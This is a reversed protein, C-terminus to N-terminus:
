PYCGTAGRWGGRGGSHFWRSAHTTHPKSCSVRSPVVRAGALCHCECSSIFGGWPPTTCAFWGSQGSRRHQSCSPQLQPVCARMSCGCLACLSSCEPQLLYCERFLAAALRRASDRARAHMLHLKGFSCSGTPRLWLPQQTACRLPCACPVTCLWPM